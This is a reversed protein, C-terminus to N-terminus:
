FKAACTDDSPAFGNIEAIFNEYCGPGGRRGRFPDPHGRTTLRAHVAEHIIFGAQIAETHAADWFEPCILVSSMRSGRCSLALDGAVCQASCEEVHTARTGPCRYRINRGLAAALLRFNDAADAMEESLAAARTAHVTGDFRNRFGDAVAPPDDFFRRYAVVIDPYITPDISVIDLFIAAAAAMRQAAADVRRLRAMPDAPASDVGAPCVSRPGVTRRLTASAGDDLLVARVPSRSNPAWGQQAVHTLEHAMLKRGASTFPHYEGQGFFISNGITFARAGISSALEGAEANRHVRVRSFDRGFRPDFFSRNAAGLPEGGTTARQIRGALEPGLLPSRGPRRKALIEEEEEELPQRQVEESCEDCMRQIRGTELEEECETCMGQVTPGGAQPAPMKLVEDAVRDAERELRDNPAGITLKPQIAGSRLVSRVEPRHDTARRLPSRPTSRRRITTPDGTQQAHIPGKM